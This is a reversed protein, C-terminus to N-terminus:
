TSERRVMGVGCTKRVEEEWEAKRVRRKQREHVHGQRVMTKATDDIGEALISVAEPRPYRLPLHSPVCLM